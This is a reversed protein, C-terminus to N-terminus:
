LSDLLYGRLTEPIQTKICWELAERSTLPVIQRQCHLRSRAKPDTRLDIWLDNPGLKQGDVYVQHLWLFFAGDPTQMFDQQSSPSGKGALKLATETDYFKGAIETRVRDKRSPKPGRGELRHLDNAPEVNLVPARRM